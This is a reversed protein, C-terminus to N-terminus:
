IILLRDKIINTIIELYKESTSEKFYKQSSTDIICLDIKNEICLKFKNSDNLQIKELKNVGYIPEYHFIGNLEFALNLSPIHIDLESKIAEKKNYHIDINPYLETLKKEIWIELKSRRNGCTKHKNNHTVACSRSCFHNLTGNCQSLKKNFEKNCNLCIVKQEYNSFLSKCEYSCFKCRGRNIKLEYKIEKKLRHFTKNCQYCKCPLLDYSKASDFEEQTYIPKM